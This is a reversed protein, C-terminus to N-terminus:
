CLIGEKNEFSISNFKSAEIDIEFNHEQGVLPQNKWLRGVTYSNKLQM